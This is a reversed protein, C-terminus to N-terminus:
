HFTTKHNCSRCIELSNKMVTIRKESLKKPIMLREEMCLNCNPKTFKKMACIPNIKQLVKFEIYKHLGTCSTTSNFQQEFHAAFSDPNQGNKLLPPINSFHGNTRKKFTNHTNGIYIAEDMSNVEKTKFQKRGDSRKDVSKIIPFQFDKSVCFRQAETLGRNVKLNQDSLHLPNM